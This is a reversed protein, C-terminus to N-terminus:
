GLGEEGAPKMSLSFLDKMSLYKHKGGINLVVFDKCYSDFLNSIQNDDLRKLELSIEKEIIIEDFSNTKIYDSVKRKGNKVINFNKMSYYDEKRKFMNLAILAKKEQIRSLQHEEWESRKTNPNIKKKVKISSLRSICEGTRQNLLQMAQVYAIENRALNTKSITPIVIYCLLMPRVKFELFHRLWNKFADSEALVDKFNKKFINKITEEVNVMRKRYLFKESDKNVFRLVVQMPYSLYRLFYQYQFSLESKENPELGSLNIPKVEIISVLTKPNILAASDKAMVKGLLANKNNM